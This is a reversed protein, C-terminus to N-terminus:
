HSYAHNEMTDDHDCMTRSLQQSKIIKKVKTGRVTTEPYGTLSRVTPYMGSPFIVGRDTRSALYKRGIVVYERTRATVKSSLWGEQDIYVVLIDGPVASQLCLVSM